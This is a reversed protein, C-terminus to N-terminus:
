GIRKGRYGAGVVIAGIGIALVVLVGALLAIPSSAVGGHLDIPEIARAHSKTPAPQPAEAPASGSGSPHHPVPSSHAVPTRQSV